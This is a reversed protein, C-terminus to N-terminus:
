LQWVQKIDEGAINSSKLKEVNGDVSVVEERVATMRTYTFHCRVIAEIQIATIGKSCGM